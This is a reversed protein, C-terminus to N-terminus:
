ILCFGLAAISGFLLAAFAGVAWAWARVKPVRFARAQDVLYVGEMTVAWCIGGLVLMLAIIPILNRLETM